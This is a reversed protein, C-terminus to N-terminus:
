KKKYTHKISFADCACDFCFTVNRSGCLFGPAGEITRFNGIMGLTIVLNQLDMSEFHLFFSMVPVDPRTPDCNLFNFMM